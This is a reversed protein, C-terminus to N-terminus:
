RGRFSRRRLFAFACLGAGLLAFTSPEPIVMGGGGLESSLLNPYCVDAM